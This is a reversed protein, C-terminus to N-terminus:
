TKKPAPDVMQSNLLPPPRINKRWTNGQLINKERSIMRCSM